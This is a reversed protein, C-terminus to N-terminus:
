AARPKERTRKSSKNPAACAERLNVLSVGSFGVGIALWAAVCGWFAKPSSSHLVQFSQHKSPFEVSGDIVGTIAFWFAVGAMGLILLSMLIQISPRM